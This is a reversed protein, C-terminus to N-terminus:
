LYMSAMASFTDTERKILKDVIERTIKFPFEVKLAMEGEFLNSGPKMLRYLNLKTHIIELCRKLNRVGDEKNCHTDVIYGIVDDPIIIDGDNFRVQERIKPLLYNNSICNKEKSNYGKTKIRYMRDKLIPNV